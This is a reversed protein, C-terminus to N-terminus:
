NLNQEAFYRMADRMFVAFEPNPQGDILTYRQDDVYLQGLGAYAEAQRDALRTSGWFRRIIAYHKAIETQVLKGQPNEHSLAALRETLQRSEEMLDAIEAKSLKGLEKEANEVVEPGWKEAAEKRYAEAKERPLGAYLEEHNMMAGNKLNVITKEVTVLLNAIREERVKLASKHSELAQLLDFDPDNLIQLIEQLAFDLEKYFLIQQLRLLEKEGYMRYRAETRVSPKLLGMRDYLHLTRVSVGALRALKKVSYLIM